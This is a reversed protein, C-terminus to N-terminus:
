PVPRNHSLWHSYTLIEFRLAGYLNDYLTKFQQLSLEKVDYGDAVTRISEALLRCQDMVERKVPYLEEVRRLYDAYSDYSEALLWLLRQRSKPISRSRELLARTTPADPRRDADIAGKQVVYPYYIKM